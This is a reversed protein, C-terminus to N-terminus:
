VLVEDCEPKVEAPKYLEGLIPNYDYTRLLKVGKAATFEEVKSKVIESVITHYLMRSDARFYTDKRIREYWVGLIPLNLFFSDFDPIEDSFVGVGASPPKPSGGQARRIFWIGGILIAIGALVGWFSGGIRAFLYQLAGLLLVIGFLLGILALWGSRPMEVFRLSFFYERGFPAACIDFAFRERALRLYVRKDSLVGGEHYEIRTSKLQPLRRAAIEALVSEYFDQTSFQIADVAVYWHSLVNAPQKPGLHPLM